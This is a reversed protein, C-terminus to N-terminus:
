PLSDVRLNEEVFYKPQILKLRFLKKKKLKGSNRHQMGFLTWKLYKLTLLFLKKGHNACMYSVHLTFKSCLSKDIYIYKEYCLLHIPMFIQM